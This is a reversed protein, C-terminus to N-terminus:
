YSQRSQTNAGDKFWSPKGERLPVDFESLDLASPAPNYAWDVANAIIHKIEDQHFTPHSEHGPRFYFIRGKGRVFCCGSRFAEGGTFSSIFVLEDPQPIDFYEAYMEETPIVFVPPIGRTIPHTLNVTWVIEQDDGQRWWRISGSTGMLRQFPKSEMASHLAILGMGDEVVRRRVREAIEDSLVDQRVHSWWVLVDTEDLDAPALGQHPDDLTATHVTARDGLRERVGDAIVEQVGVPYFRRAAEDYGEQLRRVSEDRSMTFPEGWVMVRM